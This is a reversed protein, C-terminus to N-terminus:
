RALYTGMGESGTPGSTDMGNMTDAEGTTDTGDLTDMGAMSDMEDMTDTGNTIDTRSISGDACALDGATVVIASLLNFLRRVSFKRNNMANDRQM